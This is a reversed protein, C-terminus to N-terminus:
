SGLEKKIKGLREEMDSPKKDRKSKRGKESPKEKGPAKARMHRFSAVAWVVVIIIGFPAIVNMPYPLFRFLGTIQSLTGALQSRIIMTSSNNVVAIYGLFVMLGGVLAIIIKPTKKGAPTKRPRDEEFIKEKEAESPFIVPSGFIPYHVRALKHEELIKAWLAIREKEVGFEAAADLFSIQKRKNIIGYLKDINTELYPIKGDAEKWEVSKLKFIGEEPKSDASRKFADASAKPRLPKKGANGRKPM